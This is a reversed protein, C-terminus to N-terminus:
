QNVKDQMGKFLDDLVDEAIEPIDDEEEDAALGEFHM